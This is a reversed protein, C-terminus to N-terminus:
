TFPHRCTSRHYASVTSPTLPRAASPPAQDPKCRISDCILRYPVITRSALRALPPAATTREPGRPSDRFPVLSKRTLAPQIALCCDQSLATSSTLRDTCRPSVSPRTPSLPLPLDVRARSRTWRM